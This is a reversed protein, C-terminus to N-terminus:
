KMVYHITKPGSKSPTDNDSKIINADLLIKICHDIDGKKFGKIRNYLVGVTAGEDGILHKIKSFLAQERNDDNTLVMLAKDSIDKKILAYAWLVHESTRLGGPAGLIFSVKAVLEPAGIYLAELGTESVQNIAEDDFSRRIKDLLMVAKDTSPIKTREGKICIRDDGLSSYSGYSSLRMITNRISVPMPIYKYNDKSRPANDREYFILSRGIFGNTASHYDVLTDFTVPTTFGIISVFPNVVGRDAEILRRNLSKLTEDNDSENEDLRKNERAIQKLLKDKIDDKADGSLRLTGNAKGYASMLLGVVGDLYVAGGKEQAKKIKQLLIGIEDVVYLSAQHRLSMNISVEKESKINGHICPALGAVELIDGCAAQPAEKGSRSGAVCFVFLNSTTSDKEAIYRLGIVNSVAALAAAVALKERPRRGTSEIWEAVEGVFGPPRLLDINTTDLTPEPNVFTVPLFEISSSFTVSQIWGALEAYYILTGIKIIQGSTKNFSKWHLWTDNNYKEGKESWKDWLEYGAGGTAHHIAMGCEIWISYECDADISTVMDVIDSEEIDLFHGNLEYQQRVPKRLLDLLGQPAPGIDHPTGIVAKYKNGSVHISGPGVVYGSSKFDIGKYKPHHQILQTDGISFYLHKSGGGSGTEVILGAGILAPVDSLLEHYSDVGGNRADVDIVLLNKCLVGYGTDFQGAECGVDFQDDTWEPTNQWGSQIPHKGPAACTDRGCLCEGTPSIGHLGFVRYGADRFLNHM